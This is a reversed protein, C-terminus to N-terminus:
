YEDILTQKTAYVYGDEYQNLLEIIRQKMSM